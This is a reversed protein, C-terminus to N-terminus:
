MGLRRGNEGLCIEWWGENEKIWFVVKSGKYNGLCVGEWRKVLVEIFVM